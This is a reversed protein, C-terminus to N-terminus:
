HYMLVPVGFVTKPNTGKEAVASEASEGNTGIAVVKYSPTGSDPVATDYYIHKTTKGLTVWNNSKTKRQIEYECDTNEDSFFIVATGSDLPTVSTIEPLSLPTSETKAAASLFVTGASEGHTGLATVQYDYGQGTQPPEDIYATETTDAVFKFDSSGSVRRYVRYGSTDAVADWSLALRGESNATVQLDNPSATVQTSCASLSLVIILVCVAIICSKIPFKMM